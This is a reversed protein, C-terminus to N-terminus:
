EGTVTEDVFVRKAMEADIMLLSGGDKGVLKIKALNSEATAEEEVQEDIFWKLFADTKHDREKKATDVIEYISKTVYREHNLASRFVEELDSFETQPAEINSLLIRGGVDNLYDYIKMGHSREEQAQVRFFNAMGDLSKDYLYAAMSLYLHESFLEKKIQENLQKQLTESIM